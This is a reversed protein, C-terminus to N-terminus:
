QLAGSEIAYGVESLKSSILEQNYGKIVDDGILTLPVGIGGLSLHKLRAVISQEIDYEIYSVNLADFKERLMNCYPCWATSYLVVEKSDPGPLLLKPGFYLPVSFVIVIALFISGFLRKLDPKNSM